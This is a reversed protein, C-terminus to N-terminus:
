SSDEGPMEAPSGEPASGHFTINAQSYQDPQYPQGYIVEELEELQNLKIPQDDEESDEIVSLPTVIDLMTQLHERDNVSSMQQQNTTARTKRNNGAEAAVLSQAYEADEQMQLMRKSYSVPDKPDISDQLRKAFALDADLHGDYPRYNIYM